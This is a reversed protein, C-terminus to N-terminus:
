LTVLVWSFQHIFNKFERIAAEDFNFMCPSALSFAEYVRLETYSLSTM